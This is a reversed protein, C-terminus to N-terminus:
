RQQTASNFFWELWKKQARVSLGIPHSHHSIAILTGDATYGPPLMVIVAQKFSGKRVAFVGIRVKFGAAALFSFANSLDGKTFTALNIVEHYPMDRLTCHDPDETGFIDFTMPSVTLYSNGTEPPSCVQRIPPKPGLRDSPVLLEDGPFIRDPNPRKARFAANDPHYYLDKWSNLGNAAAIRTLTDGRRVTYPYTSM